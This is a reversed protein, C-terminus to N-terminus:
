PCSGGVRMGMVSLVGRGYELVMDGDLAGGDPGEAAVFPVDLWGWCWGDEDEVVVGM